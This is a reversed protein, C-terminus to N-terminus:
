QFKMNSTGSAEMGATSIQHCIDASPILYEAVCVNYNPVLLINLLHKCDEDNNIKKAVIGILHIIRKAQDYTIFAKGGLLCVKPVVQKREDHSMEKIKKFRYVIGLINLLQRKYEHIRKIQVDFM